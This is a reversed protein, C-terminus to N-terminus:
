GAGSGTAFGAIFGRDIHQKWRAVWRGQASFGGRSAIARSDATALLVLFRAQPRFEAPAGDGLAARLNRTLVPGMRVAYVGAKPLPPAWEACDGVAHIWPQSTSRLLTDVLVFGRASVALDGRRAPDRQWPQSEAGTAWLLWDTDPQAGPQPRWDQGLQPTVGARALTQAGARVAGSALGPLLTAARSVLRGEVTAAPRLRRLRALVALLAEFGAAGGGVATVRLRAASAPREAWGRLLDDWAAHLRALPRLSLVRHGAAPPPTLTSGVNLSLLDFELTAGGALRLARGDPALATLEDDLLRAGAQRALAGFDICIDDFRYEGALWGPVMGSYPALRLPSVVQLEVGPLPARAWDRLVQAHAHGAGVLLLRKM